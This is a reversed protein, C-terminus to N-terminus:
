RDLLHALHTAVVERVGRQEHLDHGAGDVRIWTCDDSADVLTAEDGKSTSRDPADLAAALVVTPVSLGREIDFGEGLQPGDAPPDFLPDLVATDVTLMAAARAAVADDHYREALTDGFPSPRDRLRETLEVVGTGQERWTPQEEVLRRFAGAIPGQLPGRAPRAFLLAPDELLLASVLEPRQQAVAAAVVGGLSHGVLVAPRRVVKELVDVVDAVYGPLDYDEARDSGGHGRLDPRVVRHDDGFRDVAWAFSAAARTIGHLLVVPPAGDDGDVHVSLKPRGKRSM